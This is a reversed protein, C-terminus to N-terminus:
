ALAARVLDAEWECQDGEHDHGFGTATFACGGVKEHAKHLVDVLADTMNLEDDFADFEEGDDFRVRYMPGVEDDVEDTGLQRVIVARQGSYHRALSHSDHGTNKFLVSDGPEM